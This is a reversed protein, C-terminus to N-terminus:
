DSYEKRRPPINSTDDCAVAGAQIPCHDCTPARVNLFVQLRHPVSTTEYMGKGSWPWRIISALTLYAGTPEGEDWFSCEDVSNSIGNPLNCTPPPPMNFANVLPPGSVGGLFRARPRPHTPMCAHPLAHLVCATRQLFDLRASAGLGRDSVPGSKPVCCWRPTELRGSSWTGLTDCGCKERWWGRAASWCSM